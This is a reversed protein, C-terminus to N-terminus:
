FAFCSCGFPGRLGGFNSVPVTSERARDHSHAHVGCPGGCRALGVVNNKLTQRDAPQVGFAMQPQHDVTTLQSNHPTLVELKPNNMIQEQDYPDTAVPTAKPTPRGEVTSLLSTDSNLDDFAEVKRRHHESGRDRQTRHPSTM